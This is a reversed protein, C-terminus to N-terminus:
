AAEENWFREADHSVGDADLIHTVESFRMPQLLGCVDIRMLGTVVDIDHVPWYDDGVFRAILPHPLDNIAAMDLKDAM